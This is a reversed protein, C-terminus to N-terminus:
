VICKSTVANSFDFRNLSISNAADSMPFGWRFCDHGFACSIIM